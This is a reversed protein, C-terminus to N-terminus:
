STVEEQRLYATVTLPLIGPLYTAIQEINSMHLFQYPLYAALCVPRYGALFTPSYYRWFILDLLILSTVSDGLLAALSFVLRATIDLGEVWASASTILISFLYGRWTKSPGL